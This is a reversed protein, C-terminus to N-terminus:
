FQAQKSSLVSYKAAVLNLSLKSSIPSQAADPSACSMLEPSACHARKRPIKEQAHSPLCTETRRACWSQAYRCACARIWSSACCNEEEHSAQATPLCHTIWSFRALAPSYRTPPTACASCKPAHNARRFGAIKKHFAPARERSRKRM